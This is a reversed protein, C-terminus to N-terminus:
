IRIHLTKGGTGISKSYWDDDPTLPKDLRIAGAKVLREIDREKQEDKTLPQKKM